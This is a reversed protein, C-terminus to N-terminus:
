IINIYYKLFIRGIGAAKHKQKLSFNVWVPWIGHCLRHLQFMHPRPLSTLLGKRSSISSVGQQWMCSAATTEGCHPGQGRPAKLACLSPEKRRSGSLGWTWQPSAETVWLHSVLDLITEHVPHPLQSSYLMRVALSLRCEETSRWILWFYGLPVPSSVPTGGLSPQERSRDCM